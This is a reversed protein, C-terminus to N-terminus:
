YKILYNLVIFPPMNNHSAGGGTNQNVATANEDASQGQGTGSGWYMYYNQPGGVSSYAIRNHAHANQTHTHAPMHDTTLTVTEVGGTTNLNRTTLGTGAGMGVMIRGRLDPLNFNTTAGGFQTGIIAFLNSYINTSVAAGNCLLWGTPANSSIYPIVAGVPVVSGGSPTSVTIGPTSIPGAPSRVEPAVQAFVTSLGFLLILLTNTIKM